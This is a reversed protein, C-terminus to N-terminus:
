IDWRMLANFPKLYEEYVADVVYLKTPVQTKAPRVHWLTRKESPPEISTQINDCIPLHLKIYIKKTELLNKINRRFFSSLVWIIDTQQIEVSPDTLFM